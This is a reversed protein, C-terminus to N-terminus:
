LGGGRLFRLYAATFERYRYKSIPLTEGGALTVETRTYREVRALSVLYGKHIRCLADGAEAELDRLRARCSFTEDRLHVTVRHGGGEIYRIDDLPVTRRAGEMRLTVATRTGELRRVARAFVQAFRAEDVPKLLYQFAGVDFADFVYRDYGTVFIVLPRAEGSQERITRALAMGDSDGGLAIDLFLLDAQRWGALCEAASAYVTVGCPFPQRRILSALYARTNPEDECIAAQIM